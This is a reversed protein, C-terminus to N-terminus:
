NSKEHKPYIEIRRMQKSITDIEDWDQANIFSVLTDLCMFDDCKFFHEYHYILNNNINNVNFFYFLQYVYLLLLLSNM